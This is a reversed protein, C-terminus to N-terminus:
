PRETSEDGYHERYFRRYERSGSKIAKWWDAHSRYWEVTDALGKEFAVVPSWGLRRLKSTDLAYRRDHGPRDKVPRILTKPKGVFELIRETLALNTLETGGGINYTEGAEGKEFLLDLARCHDEVYLWDRMQLGEGYLPLERDELAHTLFLPIIKEPYQRPGYNNSSRTVLVPIGYTTFYSYALRDAGAKSAAYPNRPMLPHSERAAGMLIEGYVEDTSIQVFLRARRNQRMAELLIFTGYVDTLIFQGAHHISRDVHTEAAFNVIIDAEAVLPGVVERDCIDGKVFRYGSRGEMERVNELSGAYTLKDVVTISWDPHTRAIYHVFNSGIFGAGGTVLLHTTM